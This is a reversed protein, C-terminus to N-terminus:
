PALSPPLVSTALIRGQLDTVRAVRLRPSPQCPPTNWGAHLVVMRRQAVAGRMDLLALEVPGDPEAALFLLGPRGPTSTRAIPTSALTGSVTRPEQSWLVQHPSPGTTWGFTDPAKIERATWQSEQLSWEFDRFPISLNRGNARLTGDSSGIVLGSLTGTADRRVLSSRANTSVGGWSLPCSAHRCDQFRLAAGGDLTAEFGAHHADSSDRRQPFAQTSAPRVAMLSALIVTDGRVGVHVDTKPVPTSGMDTKWWGLYRGNKNGHHSAFAMPVTAHLAHNWSPGSAVNTRITRTTPDAVVVGAAFEPSFNWVQTWDHIRAGTMRDSVIWGDLGRLQIVTRQHIADTISGYGETFRTTVLDFRDSTSWLGDRFASPAVNTTGRKQAISDCLVTSSKWGSAEDFYANFKDFEPRLDSPCLTTTYWQVGSGVLFQRAGAAVQIAGADPSDHGRSPRAGNMWLWPSLPTWDRRLSYYGVHPFAASQVAPAGSTAGSLATKVQDLIPDQNGSRIQGEFSSVAAARAKTWDYGSAWADAKISTGNNGNRPMQGFPDLGLALIHRFGLSRERMLVMSAPVPLRVSETPGDWLALLEDMAGLDGTNYNFSQELFGGDRFTSGSLHDQMSVDVMPALSDRVARFEPFLAGYMSLASLGEMRQNPVAGAKQFRWFMAYPHDVVLSWAIRALIEADVRALAADNIPRAVPALVADWSPRPDDPQLSKAILALQRVMQHIRFGQDLAVQANQSWDCDYGQRAAAPLALIQAKQNRCFQGVIEFYKDLYVASRTQHFKTALPTFMKFTGYVDKTYDPSSAPAVPAVWNITAITGPRGRWGYSDIWDYGISQARYQAETISDVLFAAFSLPRPHTQYSHWGFQGLDQVRLRRLFQNRWVILVSDTKGSRALRAATEMGPASLNLGAVFQEPFTAASTAFTTALVLGAAFSRPMSPEPNSPREM